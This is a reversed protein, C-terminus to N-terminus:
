SESCLFSVTLMVGGAVLWSRGESPVLSMLVPRKGGCSSVASM